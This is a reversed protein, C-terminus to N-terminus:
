IEYAAPRAPHGIQHRGAGVAPGGSRVSTPRAQLCWPWRLERHGNRNGRAAAILRDVEAQTLYERTRLKANPRRRPTVIRMVIAPTVLKLHAKGLYKAWQRPDVTRVFIM